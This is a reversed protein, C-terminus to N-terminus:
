HLAINFIVQIYNFSLLYVLIYQATESSDTITVQEQYTNKYKLTKAKSFPKQKRSQQNIHEESYYAIALICCNYMRSMLSAKWEM